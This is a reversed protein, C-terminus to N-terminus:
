SCFRMREDMELDRLEVLKPVLRESGTDRIPLGRWELQGQLESKAIDHAPSAFHPITPHIRLDPPTVGHPAFGPEFKETAVLSGVGGCVLDGRM